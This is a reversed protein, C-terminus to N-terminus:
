TEALYEKARGERPVPAQELRAEVVNELHVVTHFREAQKQFAEM